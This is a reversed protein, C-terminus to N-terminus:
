KPKIAEGYAILKDSGVYSSTTSLKFNAIATAGLETAAKQIAEKATAFDKKALTQASARSLALRNM